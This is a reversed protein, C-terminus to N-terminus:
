YNKCALLCVSLCISLCPTFYLRKHPLYFSSYTKALTILSDLTRTSNDIDIHSRAYSTLLVEYQQNDNKIAVDNQDIWTISPQPDGDARCFLQVDSKELEIRHSSWMYVRALMLVSLM